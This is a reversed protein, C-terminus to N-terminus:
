WTKEGKKIKDITGKGWTKDAGQEIAIKQAKKEWEIAEDKRGIKYLLNAYTDMYAPKIKEQNIFSQKSWNLASLLCRKENANKFINWAQTNLEHSELITSDKQIFSDITQALDIWNHTMAYYMYKMYAFAKPSLMPYKKSVRAELTDWYPSSPKLKGKINGSEENLIISRITYFAEKSGLISDVKQPYAIAMKFATDESQKTLRILIELNEKKYFDSQTSLYDNIVNMNNEANNALILDSTLQYLFATSREGARYKNLKDYFKNIPIATTYKLAEKGKDIFYKAEMSGTFEYILEGNQNFILYTPYSSIPYKDVFDRSTAYWSKVEKSDNETSDIQLKINLFHANYFEGVSKLPFIESSMKKCPGCWTTFCDVFIYKDNTKAKALIDQWNSNHEFYIGKDQAFLTSPFLSTVLLLTKIFVRILVTKKSIFESEIIHMTLM